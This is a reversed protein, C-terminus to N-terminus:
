DLSWARINRGHAMKLLPPRSAPQESSLVFGLSVVRRQWKYDMEVAVTEQTSLFHQLWDLERNFLHRGSACFLFAELCRFLVLVVHFFLLKEFFTRM